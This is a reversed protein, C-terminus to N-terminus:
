AAGAGYFNGSRIAVAKAHVVSSDYRELTARYANAKEMPFIRVPAVFGDRDMQEIQERALLKPV